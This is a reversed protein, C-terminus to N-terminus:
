EAMPLLRLRGGHGPRFRAAHRRELVAPWGGPAVQVDPHREVLAAATGDNSADDLVFVDLTGDLLQQARLSDLCALTLDRRNHVAMVAAIRLGAMARWAGTPPDLNGTERGKHFERGAVTVFCAM